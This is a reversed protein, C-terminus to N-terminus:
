KSQRGVTSQERSLSKISQLAQALRNASSDKTPKPDEEEDSDVELVHLLRHKERLLEIKARAAPTAGTNVAGKFQVVGRMEYYCEDTGSGRFQLSGQNEESPDLSGTVTKFWLGMGLLDQKPVTVWNGNVTAKLPQFSFTLNETIDSIAAPANDTVGPYYAMAFGGTNPTGGLSLVCRYQFKVFRYLDYADAIELVRPLFAPSLNASGAGASLTKYNIYSFPVSITRERISGNNSANKSARKQSKKRSSM